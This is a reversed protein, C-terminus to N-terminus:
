PRGLLDELGKIPASVTTQTINMKRAADINSGTEAVKLFTRALTVDM